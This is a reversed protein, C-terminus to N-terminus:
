RYGELSALLCRHDIESFNYQRMQALKKADFFLKVQVELLFAKRAFSECLFINIFNVGPLFREIM